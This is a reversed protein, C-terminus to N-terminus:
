SLLFVGSKENDVNGRADSMGAWCVALMQMSLGLESTDFSGGRVRLRERWERAPGDISKM